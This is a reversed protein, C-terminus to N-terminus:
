GITWTFDSLGDQLAAITETALPPPRLFRLQREKVPAEVEYPLIRKLSEQVSRQGEETAFAVPVIKEILEIASNEKLSTISNNESQPSSSRVSRVGM